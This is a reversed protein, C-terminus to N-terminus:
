FESIYDELSNEPKLGLKKRIRYRTKRIAENTVNQINAIQDSSLNIKLYACFRLDTKTLSPYLAKLKIFFDEHIASFRQNFLDTESSELQKLKIASSIEKIIEINEPSSVRSLLLNIKQNISNLLENKQEMGLAINVLERDKMKLEDTFNKITLRNIEEEKQYKIVKLNQIELRSEILEKSKLFNKRQLIVVIGALVVFLIAVGVLILYILKQRETAQLEAQQLELLASNRENEYKLESSMLGNRLKRKFVTDKLTNVQRSKLLANKYDGKISDLRALMILADIAASANDIASACILSKDMYYVASDYRGRNLFQDGKNQYLETLLSTDNTIESIRISKNLYQMGLQDKGANQLLMAHNYWIVPLIISDKSSILDEELQHYIDSAEEIRGTREYLYALNGELNILETNTPRDSIMEIAKNFVLEASDYKGTETKYVGIINYVRAIGPKYNVREFLPLSEYYLRLAYHPDDTALHVSAMRELCRAKLLSLDHSDAIKLATSYKELAGRYQNNHYLSNGRIFLVEALGKEYNQDKAIKEAQDLLYHLTDHNDAEYHHAQSLYHNFLSTDNPDLPNSRELLEKSSNNNCSQLFLYFLFLIITKGTAKM